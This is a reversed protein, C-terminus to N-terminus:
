MVINMCGSWGAMAQKINNRKEKQRHQFNKKPQAISTLNGRKAKSCEQGKDETPGVGDPSFVIKTKFSYNPMKPINM